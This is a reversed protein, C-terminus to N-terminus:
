VRLVGVGRAMLAACLLLVVLAALEWHILRRILRLKREPLVPVVGERLPKRWSLFQVTPYISLLAIIVFLALKALFPVSHSYYAPGKEFHAVRLMGIVLVAAAAIGYVLDALRLQRARQLTLEGRLLVLEVTVAAVLAFAALHHLFAFTASM